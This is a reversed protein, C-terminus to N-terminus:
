KDKILKLVFFLRLRRRYLEGWFGLALKQLIYTRTNMPLIQNVLAIGDEKEGIINMSNFTCGMFMATILTIVILLSKLGDYNAEQPILTKLFVTEKIRNEYLQSLTKGITSYLEFEDGSLVACIGNESRLVGIMQTAPDNVAAELDNRTKFEILNGNQRLWVAAEEPLDNKISGFSVQNLMQFSIAPLLNIVIGVIIPLLFTLLCLKDRRINKLQYKLQQM